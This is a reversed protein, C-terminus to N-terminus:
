GGVKLGAGPCRRGRTRGPSSEVDNHPTFRGRISGVSRGCVPCTPRHEPQLAALFQAARAAALRESGLVVKTEANLQVEWWGNLGPRIRITNAGVAAGEHWDIAV